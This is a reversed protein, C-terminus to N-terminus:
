FTKIHLVKSTFSHTSEKEQSQVGQSVHMSLSPLSENFLNLIYTLILLNFQQAHSQLAVSWDPHGHQGGGVVSLALLMCTRILVSWPATSSPPRTQLSNYMSSISSEKSLILM